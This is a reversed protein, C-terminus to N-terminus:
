NLLNNNCISWHFCIFDNSPTEKSVVRERERRRLGGNNSRHYRCDKGQSQIKRLWNIATSLNNDKFSYWCNEREWFKSSLDSAISPPPVDDPCMAPYHSPLTAPDSAPLPESLCPFHCNKVSLQSPELLEKWGSSRISNNNNNNAVSGSIGSCLWHSPIVKRSWRSWLYDVRCRRLPFVNGSRFHRWPHLVLLISQFYLQHCSFIPMGISIEIQTAQQYSGEEM